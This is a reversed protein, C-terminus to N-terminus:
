LLETGGSISQTAPDFNLASVTSGTAAGNARKGTATVPDTLLLEHNMLLTYKDGDKLVGLGDPVGFLTYGQIQDGATALVKLNTGPAVTEMYSFDSATASAAAFLTAGAVIAAAVPYAKRM